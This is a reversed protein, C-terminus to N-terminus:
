GEKLAKKRREAYDGLEKRSTSTMVCSRSLDVATDVADNTQADDIMALLQNFSYEKTKAVQKDQQKDSQTAKKKKAVKQQAEAPEVIEEKIIEGSETDVGEGTAHDVTVPQETQQQPTPKKNAAIKAMEENLEDRTNTQADVVGQDPADLERMDRLEEATQMGMLLDPAYLKGLFSGSRYMLMLEELTPWKSGAKTYWGEKVAMSISVEPGFLMERTKLDRVKARCTREYITTTKTVASKKGGAWEYEIYEVKTLKTDRPSMEFQVPSFRGCSNLMAIVWQASWGPNGYVVYLSQMVMFPSTGIRDAIEMAIVCDGINNQYAKPVMTSKSLIQAMRQYEEFKTINTFPSTKQQKETVALVQKLSESISDNSQEAPQQKTTTQAEKTAVDQTNTNM